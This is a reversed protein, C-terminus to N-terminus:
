LAAVLALANGGPVKGKAELLDRWVHYILIVFVGLFGVREAFMLVDAFWGENGIVLHLLWRGGAFLLVALASDIAHGVLARVQPRETFAVFWDIIM